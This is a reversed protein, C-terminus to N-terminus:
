PIYIALKYFQPFEGLDKNNIEIIQKGYAIVQLVIADPKPYILDLHVTLIGDKETIERVNMTYGSTPFNQKVTITLKDKGREISLGNAGGVYAEEYESAEFPITRM